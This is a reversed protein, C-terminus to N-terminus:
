TRVQFLGAKTVYKVGKFPKYKEGVVDLRNVRLGSMAVQEVKFHLGLVPNAEPANSTSSFQVQSYETLKM